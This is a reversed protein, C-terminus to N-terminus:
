LSGGKPAARKRTRPSEAAFSWVGMMMAFGVVIIAFLSMLVLM